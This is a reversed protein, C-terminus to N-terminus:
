LYMVIKPKVKIVGRKKLGVGWFVKSTSVGEPPVHKTELIEYDQDELLDSHTFPLSIDPLDIFANDYLM